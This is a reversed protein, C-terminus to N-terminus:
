KLCFVAYSIGLHSSNLRTSKRDAPIYSPPTGHQWGGVRPPKWGFREVWDVRSPAANGRNLALIQPHDYIEDVTALSSDKLMNAIGDHLMQPRWNAALSVLELLASAAFTLLLYLLAMGIALDITKVSLM